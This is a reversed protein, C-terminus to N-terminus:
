TAPIRGIKGGFILKLAIGNIRIPTANAAVNRAMKTLQDQCLIITTEIHQSTRQVSGRGNLWFTEMVGKGKIIVEGRSEMDYGGVQKLLIMADVSMHIKGPKGNSEMRSATNVTDGFLCYRPMALGVVGAVCSGSHIGIRLNVTESPLHPIRFLKVTELFGLSMEAIEKVHQIGNRYPLGSVCLYGDGITEVKYVQHQEIITDFTTYLDNLLGVIQLPSCRAALNTFQVVDSFFITVSEFSEPEVSQGLKLKEAVQKPLMRQLLLDGKKKEEVLEVMRDQVEKELTEAYSEMLSFVHDMLNQQGDGSMSKLIRKITTINPRDMPQEAWSDRIMHLVAPNLEMDPHVNLTPRVPMQGGRKIMYLLEETKENRNLLDYVERRTVIESCIIAYAYIDAEKTGESLPMRLLEPALWLQRKRELKAGRRFAMCGFGSVKLQWREDIWCTGSTLNGHAGLFSRHIFHLGEALDKMLAMAIFTDLNITGKAIVDELTGRSAYKWISMMPSHDHCIGIFRHVNDHELKRLLRFEAFDENHLRPLMSYKYAFVPEEKLIFYAMTATEAKSGMSAKSKFSNSSRSSQLSHMSKEENRSKGARELMLFPIQWEADQRAREKRKERVIYFIVIIFFLLFLLLVGGGITVYMGSKQWDNLPCSKGDFNCIPTALPVVGGRMAWITTSAATADYNPTAVMYDFTGAWTLNVFQASRTNTALGYLFFTPVRTINSTMQVKGTWGVFSVSTQVLNYATSNRAGNIPDYAMTANLCYAYWMFADYLQPAFTGVGVGGSNQENQICDLTTCYFPPGRVNARVQPALQTTVSGNVNGSTLTDLVLMNNAAQQAVFDLGDSNNNVTDYWIPTFGTLLKVANTGGKGLQGLGTGMTNLMIYVYDSSNMGAETTAILFDRKSQDTPLCVAFIRAKLQMKKLLAVLVSRGATTDYQLSASIATTNFAPDILATTVDNMMNGCNGFGANGTILGIVDWEYLQCLAVLSYGLQRYNMTITTLFPFRVPDTLTAQSSFGWAIQPVQYYNSNFAVPTIGASCAPGLIVDVNMKDMLYIAMGAADGESCDTYNVIFEFNITDLLHLYGIQQLALQIVGGTLSFGIYPQQTETVIMGIVFKLQNPNMTVPPPTPLPTTTQLVKLM